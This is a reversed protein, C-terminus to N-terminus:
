GQRRADDLTENNERWPKMSSRNKPWTLIFPDAIFRYVIGIPAILVIYLATLIFRSMMHGFREMFFKFGPIVGPPAVIDDESREYKAKQFGEGVNQPAPSVAGHQDPKKDDQLATAM